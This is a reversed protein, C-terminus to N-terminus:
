NEDVLTYLDVLAQRWTNRDYTKGSTTLLVKVQESTYDNTVNTELNKLRWIRMNDPAYDINELYKAHEYGEVENSPILKGTYGCRVFLDREDNIIKDVKGLSVRFGTNNNVYETLEERNVNKHKDFIYELVRANEEKPLDVNFETKFMFKTDVPMEIGLEAVASLVYTYDWKVPNPNAASLTSSYFSKSLLIRM